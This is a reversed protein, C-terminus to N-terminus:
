SDDGWYDDATVLDSLYEGTEEGWQRRDALRDGNWNYDAGCRDCTSTFGECQVQAGCDCKVLVMEPHKRYEIQVAFVLPKGCIDCPDGDAVGYSNDISFGRGCSCDYGPHEIEEVYFPNRALIKAM